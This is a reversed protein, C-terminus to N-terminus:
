IECSTVTLLMGPDTGAIFKQYYGQVWSERQEKTPDAVGYWAIESCEHWEGDPTIVAQTSFMAQQKAFNRRDGFMDYYYFDELPANRRRGKHEVVRKWFRVARAYARKDPSFDIDCIKASSCRNKEVRLFDDCFRWKKWKAQPNCRSIINGESDVESGGAAFKWRDYESRFKKQPWTKHAFDLIEKQTCSVCPKVKLKADYPHLIDDIAQGEKHIIALTYQPM